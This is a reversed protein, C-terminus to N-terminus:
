SKVGSTSKRRFARITSQYLDILRDNAAEIDYHREVYARGIRGMMPWRQPNEILFILRSALAAVDREPVLFGSRGPVIGEALGSHDTTIIPLGSAQAEQLVGAQGEQDGNEATVSSLVFLQASAMMRQVDHKQRAGHFRVSRAIGLERSLHELPARLPGDGVIDYSLQKHKKLVEAVARLSYEIGKKEVLRGVTLLRVPQNPGATREKFPIEALNFGTVIKHIIQPKCGMKQLCDGMYQSNVTVADAANFLQRYLAPGHQRPWMSFDYGRFSVVMPANWLERAFRFSDGLPGFQAHIVDHRKNQSLLNWLRYLASLSRAQYQFYAPSIAKLALRPSSLLCQSFKPVAKIIRFINPTSKQDGPVWTCGTAPVVPLEWYGSALPMDIYTTKALLDYDAVEPHEPQDTPPRSQAYIDVEHGRDIIGTIQRLIFSESVAPFDGVFM